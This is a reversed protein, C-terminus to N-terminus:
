ETHIDTIKCHVREIVKVPLHPTISSAWVANAHEAHGSADTMATISTCLLVAQIYQPIHVDLRAPLLM